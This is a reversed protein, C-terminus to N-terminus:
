MQCAEDAGVDEEIKRYRALDYDEGKELLALPMLLYSKGALKMHLSRSGSFAGPSMLLRVEGSDDSASNLLVAPQGESVGHERLSVSSVHNGLLAIGVHLNNQKDRSLRRVIGAGWHKGRDPRTGVLLGIEVGTARAPPLVCRVGSVSVDEVTWHESTDAGTDLGAGAKELVGSFGTAVHMKVIVKHRVDRRVPLASVWFGSLHRVVERVTDVDFVGGLNIAEPVTNKELMGLLAEVHPQVSGAALFLMGPQPEIEANLRMPPAPHELDFCFLSGPENQLSIKFNRCLHSTLREALHLQLPNLTSSGSAYWMILSAFEYRVSTNAGLGAYLEVPEDLYKQAEAHAYLGAMSGWITQDPPAYRVAACKLRGTLACIARAAILSLAPQIAASGKDGNRYRTQVHLYAQAAQMFFDNLAMWLRNEHFKTLSKGSFYDRTLKREYPRATEDLLRLVEFLHDLRFDQHERVSEIWTTLEYLAKLADSKPLDQLFLQASKIDAM